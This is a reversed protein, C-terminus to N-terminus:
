LAHAVARVVVAQAGRDAHRHPAAQLVGGEGAVAEVAGLAVVEVERRAVAAGHQGAHLDAQPALQAAGLAALLHLAVDLQGLGRQAAHRHAELEEPLESRRFGLGAHPSLRRMSWNSSSLVSPAARRPRRVSLWPTTSVGTKM